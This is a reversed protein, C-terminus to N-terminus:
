QTNIWLYLECRKKFLFIVDWWMGNLAFDKVRYKRKELLSRVELLQRCLSRLCRGQYPTKLRECMAKGSSYARDRYHFHVLWLWFCCYSVSSFFVCDLYDATSVSDGWFVNVTLYSFHYICWLYGNQFDGDLHLM